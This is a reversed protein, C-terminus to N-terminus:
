KKTAGLLFKDTEIKDVLSFSDFPTKKTSSVWAYGDVTITKVGITFSNKEPKYTLESEPAKLVLNKGKMSWNGTLRDEGTHTNQKADWHRLVITFRYRSSLSLTIDGKECTMSVYERISAPSPNNEKSTALVLGTALVVIGIVILGIKMMMKRGALM